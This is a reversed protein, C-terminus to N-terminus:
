LKISGVSQLWGMVCMHMIHYVYAWGISVYIPCTCLCVCVYACACVCLVCRSLNYEGVELDSSICMYLICMYVALPCVYVVRACVCVCVSV